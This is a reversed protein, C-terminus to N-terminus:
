DPKRGLLFVEGGANVQDLGLAVQDRRHVVLAAAGGVQGFAGPFRITDLKAGLCQHQAGVAVGTVAPHDVVGGGFGAHGDLEVLRQDGAGALGDARQAGHGGGAADGGGRTSLGM